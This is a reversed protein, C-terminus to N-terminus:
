KDVNEFLANEEKLKTKIDQSAFINELYIWNKQVQLWDDLTEQAILVDKQLKEARKRLM